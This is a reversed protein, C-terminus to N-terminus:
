LNDPVTKVQEKKGTPLQFNISANIGLLINYSNPKISGLAPLAKVDTSISGRGGFSFFLNRTVYWEYEIGVLLGMENQAFLDNLNNLKSENVQMSSQTLRSYTIGTLINLSVPQGSLRSVKSFKVKAIVPVHMYVLKINGNVPIKGLENDTYQIQQYSNIICDAEIGFHRNFTFGVRVGYDYGWHTNFKADPSILPYFASKKVFLLEQNAGVMPGFYFGQVKPLSLPSNRHMIYKAFRKHVNNIPLNVNSNNTVIDPMNPSLKVKDPVYGLDFSNNANLTLSNDGMLRPHKFLRLGNDPPLNLVKHQPVANPLAAIFPSLKEKNYNHVLIDAPVEEVYSTHLPQNITLLEARDLHRLQSPYAGLLNYKPGFSEERKKDNLFAKYYDKINYNVVINSVTLPLLLIMLALYWHDYRVKNREQDLGTEVRDWMAPPPTMELNRLQERFHQELKDEGGNGPKIPRM